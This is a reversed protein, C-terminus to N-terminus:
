RWEGQIEFGAWFYPSHWRPNGALWRQARRLAESPPLKDLLIGRYFQEMLASTSEDDVNWLSVVVGAAGAYMFGEALGEFGEGEIEKGLATECASLVVLDSQLDLSKIDQLRLNGDLRRGDCGIQSLILGSLEPEEPHNQGHAAFHLYRFRGLKGSLVLDRTANCGLAQFKKERSPVLDLVKRAEEGSYILRSYEKSAFLPDALVAILNSPLRRRAVELRIARLVSVSPQYVIEKSAVLPMSSATSPDPLAAFSIYNIAGDPVIVLRKGNLRGAVPGLLITSLDRAVRLAQEEKTQFQSESLREHLRSAREEIIKRGPLTYIDVSSPTV